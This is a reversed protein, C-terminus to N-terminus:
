RIPDILPYLPRNEPLLRLGRSHGNKVHNLGGAACCQDRGEPPLCFRQRHNGYAGGPCLCLGCGRRSLYDKYQRGQKRGFGILHDDTTACFILPTAATYFDLFSRSSLKLAATLVPSLIISGTSPNIRSFDLATGAYVLRKLDWILESLLTDDGTYEYVLKEAYGDIIGFSSSLSFSYASEV